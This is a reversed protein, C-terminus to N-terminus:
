QSVIQIIIKKSSILLSALNKKLHNLLILIIKFDAKM